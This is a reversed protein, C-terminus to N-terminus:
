VSLFLYASSMHVLRPLFQVSMDAHTIKFALYRIFPRLRIAASVKTDTKERTKEFVLGFNLFPVQMAM